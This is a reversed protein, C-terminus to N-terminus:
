TTMTELHALLLKFLIRRRQPGVRIWPLNLRDVTRTSVKLYGAVDDPTLLDDPRHGAGRTAAAPATAEQRQHWLDWNAQLGLWLEAATETATAVREATAAEIAANGDVVQQLLSLAIGSREAFAAVTEQAPDLFEALLLAGPHTPPRFVPLRSRDNTM